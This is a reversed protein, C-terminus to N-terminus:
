GDRERVPWEKKHSTIGMKYLKDSKTRKEKNMECTTESNNQDIYTTTM